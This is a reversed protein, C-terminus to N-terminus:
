RCIDDIASLLRSADTSEGDVSTAALSLRLHKRAMAYDGMLYYANGLSCQGWSDGPHLRIYRGLWKLAEAPMGMELFICGMWFLGDTHGYVHYLCLWDNLKDTLDGSDHVLSARRYAEGVFSGNGREVFYMRAALAVDFVGASALRFQPVSVRFDQSQLFERDLAAPQDIGDLSFGIVRRDGSVWWSFGPRVAVIEDAAESFDETLLLLSGGDYDLFRAVSFGDGSRIDM